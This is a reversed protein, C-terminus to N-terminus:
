ACFSFLSCAVMPLTTRIYFYALVLYVVASVATETKKICYHRKYYIWISIPPIFAAVVCYIEALPHNLFIQPANFHLFRGYVFACFIYNCVFPFYIFILFSKIFRNQKAYFYLGYFVLSSLIVAALVLINWVM